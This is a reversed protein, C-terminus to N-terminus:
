SNQIASNHRRVQQNIYSSRKEALKANDKKAHQQIVGVFSRPVGGLIRQLASFSSEVISSADYGLTFHKLRWPSGWQEKTKTMTQLYNAAALWQRCARSLKDEWAIVSITNHVLHNYVFTKCEAYGVIHKLNNRFDIAMLHWTCAGFYNVSKLAQKVVTPSVAVDSITNKVIEALKPCLFVVDLLIRLAAPDTADM